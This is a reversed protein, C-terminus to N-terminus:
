IDDIILFGGFREVNERMIATQWICGTYEGQPYKLLRCQFGEHNDKMLRIFETFIFFIHKM